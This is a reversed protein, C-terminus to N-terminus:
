GAMGWKGIADAEALGARIKLTQGKPAAEAMDAEDWYAKTMFFM